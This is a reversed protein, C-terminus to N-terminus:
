YIREHGDTWIVMRMGRRDVDRARRERPGVHQVERDPFGLSRWINPTRIRTALPSAEIAYRIDGISDM